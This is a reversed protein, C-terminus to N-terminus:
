RAPARFSEPPGLYSPPVESTEVVLKQLVVGPDVMWLKLVHAGPRDIVHRSTGIRVNDSVARAWTADSDDDLLNVVEIPGEDVSVGYRLTATDDYDLTPSAYARVTVEGGQFLHMRYELRPTDGGPTVPAATVPVPTMASLTRGLGPIRTWRGSRSGVSRTYHEAEMSVYGDGEVFGDAGTPDPSAPNWVVAHAVVETAGPGSVTIPVRHSGVPAASWDVSVRVTDQVEITGSRPAVRLWSAGSRVRYDFPARGRNFVEIRRTQNRYRDIVPLEAPEAPSGPWWSDSGEMAVGMSPEPPLEITEVEPMRNEPPEQWYTYGIHTQDMMHSWKGGAVEENYTRTIAADREFLERARAAMANTAARGQGAYLRNRAVTVYLANLNGSAEVPHQVLQYFADHYEPALATRIRGAEERLHRWEALVREAERYHTLSYTEPSLLEPKRRSNLRTYGELIGAIAVAHEEGFQKAAWRRTWEPLRDAPWREPDWAYDLFFSIPYEMPKIDGVNVIWIRDVGHRWALHMQEWVRSIQNTNIWKYNRPGGVYDFHYYVGYGGPREPADPDPLRRLNGWNDDAFLLTIDEPVRMGRDYYEQVEKYLAWVQPTEAAPRGTVEEIILRQDAVIRELLAINAEESMPMDGDGRMGVTVLSELDGRREMGRRWFARLTSDNTEYNWPGEGYREWEVHARMLPEHHSTGLVVGYEDALPASLSDDDFLSRGWMAPWLFNGKLRLILEYVHEYFERNFGGFREHAWGSLAPAEDNIFIGRYRVAPGPDAHRGPLVYLDPSKKPPV